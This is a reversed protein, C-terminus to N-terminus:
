AVEAAPEAEVPAPAKPMEVPVQSEGPPPAEAEIAPEGIDETVPPATEGATEEATEEPTTEPPEPEVDVPEPEYGTQVLPVE